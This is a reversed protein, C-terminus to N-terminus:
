RLHIKFHKFKDAIKRFMAEYTNFNDHVPTEVGDDGIWYLKVKPNDKDSIIFLVTDNFDKSVGISLQYNNNLMYRIKFKKEPNFRDPIFMVGSRLARFITKVRQREKSVDVDDDENIM